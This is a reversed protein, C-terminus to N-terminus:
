IIFFGSLLRKYRSESSEFAMKMQELGSGAHKHSACTMCRMVLKMHDPAFIKKNRIVHCFNNNEVIMKPTSPLHYNISLGFLNTEYELNVPLDELNPTRTLVHFGCGSFFM